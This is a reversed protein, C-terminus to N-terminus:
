NQTSFTLTFVDNATLQLPKEFGVKKYVDDGDQYVFSIDLIYIYNTGAPLDL